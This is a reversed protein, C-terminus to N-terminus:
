RTIRETSSCQPNIVWHVWFGAKGGLEDQGKRRCLIGIFLDSPSLKGRLLLDALKQCLHEYVFGLLSKSTIPHQQQL